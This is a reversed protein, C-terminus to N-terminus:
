HLAVRAGGPFVIYRGWPKINEPNEEDELWRAPNDAIYERIRETERDDRIIHEYYNRQWLKGPFPLWGHQKIGQIYDNSTMTKFWNVINGLTPAGRHPRGTKTARIDPRGRLAAGVLGPVIVVIGHFHNPMVILEDLEVTQFNIICNTGGARSWGDRHM